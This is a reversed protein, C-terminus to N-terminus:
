FMSKYSTYKLNLLVYIYQPYILMSTEQRRMNLLNNKLNLSKNNSKFKLYHNVYYPKCM